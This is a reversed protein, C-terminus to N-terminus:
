LFIDSSSKLFVALTYCRLFAVNVRSEPFFVSALLAFVRTLSDDEMFIYSFLLMKLNLDNPLLWPFVFMLINRTFIFKEFCCKGLEFNM